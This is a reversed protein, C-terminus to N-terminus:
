GFGFSANSIHRKLINVKLGNCLNDSFEDFSGIFSFFFKFVSLKFSFFGSLVLNCEDSLSIAELSSQILKKLVFFIIYLILIVGSERRM